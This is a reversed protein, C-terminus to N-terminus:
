DAESSSASAPPDGARNARCTPPGQLSPRLAWGSHMSHLHWMRQINWAQRMVVRGDPGIVYVPNWGCGYARHTTGGLADVLVRRTLAEMALKHAASRKEGLTSHAGQVDGPHAERVYIVLFVAQPHERAIQEMSPVRDSFIPCTYSGFELVVPRGRLDGLRVCNGDLDALEFEPAQDGIAPGDRLWREIEAAESRYDYAAYNYPAASESNPAARTRKTLMNGTQRQRAARM